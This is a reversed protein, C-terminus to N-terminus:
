FTEFYPDQSNDQLEGDIVDAYQRSNSLVLAGECEVYEDLFIHVNWYDRRKGEAFDKYSVVARDTREAYRRCADVAKSKSTWLTSTPWVDFDNGKRIRTLFVAKYVVVADRQNKAIMNENQAM